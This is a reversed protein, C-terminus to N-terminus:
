RCNEWFLRPIGTPIVLRLGGIFHTILLHLLPPSRFSHHILTGPGRPESEGVVKPANVSLYDIYKGQGRIGLRNIGMGQWTNQGRAVIKWKQQNAQLLYDGRRGDDQGAVIWMVAVIKKNYGQSGAIKRAM